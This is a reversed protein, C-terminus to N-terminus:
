FKLVETEYSELLTGLQAFVSLKLKTSRDIEPSVELKCNIYLQEMADIDGHKKATNQVLKIVDLSPSKFYGGLEKDLKDGDGSDKNFNKVRVFVVEGFQHKWKALKETSVGLPLSSLQEESNTINIKVSM